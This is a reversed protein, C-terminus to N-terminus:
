GKALAELTQMLPGVVPDIVPGVGPLASVKDVAAKIAPLAAAIMEALPKKAEAPMAGAATHIKDFDASATTIAPLVGKASAEDTIGGLSDTLSKLAATSLATVDLAPAAPAMTEAAPAETTTAAPEPAPTHSPGFFGFLYAAVLVAALPLLWKMLGAGGSSSPAPAAAPTKQKLSSGLSDLVGSGELLNSFGAPMAAAINDKQSALLSAVGGADLGQSKQTQALQGMVVSSVLGLLSGSESGSIGAFKSVAGSIANSSAGGLLSSLTSAGNNILAQQGSGGILSGLNGLIGTDQRSLIDNLASAGGPRSSQGALSALITPVAAAIAKGVLGQNMGLSSAIRNIIAPGLLSLITSVLNM